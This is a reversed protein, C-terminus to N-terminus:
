NIFVRFQSYLLFQLPFVPITCHPTKQLPKTKHVRKNKHTEKNNPKTTHTQKNKYKHVRAGPIEAPNNKKEM